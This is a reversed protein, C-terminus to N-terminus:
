VRRDYRITRYRIHMTKYSQAQENPLSFLYFLYIQKRTMYYCHNSLPYRPVKVMRKTVVAFRM